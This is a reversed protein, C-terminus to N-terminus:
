PNAKGPHRQHRSAELAAALTETDWKGTHRRGGVFFTPTGLAGSAEASAADRRVHEAHRGDTLAETFREVDLGIGAAHAVLDEFRLHQHDRFLRDHMEWFKGQDAAAEAAEAALGADPHLDALPLHRFVFCLENGFRTRLEEVVHAAASSFMCEFDGYEVLVLPANSTGRLHDRRPDVPPDLTLPLHEVEERLFLPSLRFALWGTIVSLVCALLVGVIAQERLEESDFALNAILISVSFGLGSLAGGAILQGPGLGPPIPGIGLRSGGITLVGIGLPKGVVLGLVVGWLVPSGLADALVGDRLDVGANALAFVPVILYSTWPHLAEQLRENVSVARQLSRKLSGANRRMPSQRFASFRRAAAELADRRPVYSVVLIGALMGVISTHLGSHFTALWAVFGVAVYLLVQSTGSWGLVAIGGLCLIAIAMATLDTSDSYVAGIIAVAMLDDAITMTLLFVRLQPSAKRGILALAGLLFATDTGIVIGWGNAEDGSPNVLLYLVAPIVLGGLGGLAPIILRRKERLDGVSIEHRLELGIVFFFIAMFGDNVWHALDMSLAWDGVDIAIETSWLSEYSDSWPSNAWLLAIITTALLLGASGSETKMFDRLPKTIGAPTSGPSSSQTEAQVEASTM